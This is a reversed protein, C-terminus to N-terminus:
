CEQWEFVKQVDPTEPGCNRAARSSSDACGAAKEQLARAELASAGQRLHCLAESFSSAGVQFIAGVLPECSAAFGM